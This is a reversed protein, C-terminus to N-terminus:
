FPNWFFLFFFLIEMGWFYILLILPGVLENKKKGESFQRKQLRILSKLSLSFPM